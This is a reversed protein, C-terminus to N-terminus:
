WYNWDDYVPVPQGNTGHYVNGFVQSSMLVPPFLDQLIPLNGNPRFQPVIAKAGTKIVFVIDQNKDIPGDYVFGTMIYNGTKPNIPPDWGLYDPNWGHSAEQQSLEFPTSPLPDITWNTLAYTTSGITQKPERQYQAVINGTFIEIDLYSVSVKVGLQQIPDQYYFPLNFYSYYDGPGGGSGFAYLGLLTQYTIIKDGPFTLTRVSTTVVPWVFWPRCTPGPSYPAKEGRFFSKSQSFNYTYISTQGTRLTIPYYYPTQGLEAINVYFTEFIDTTQTGTNVAWPEANLLPCECPNCPRRCTWPGLLVHSFGM